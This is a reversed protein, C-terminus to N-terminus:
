QLTYGGDVTVAAGTIFSADDSVLFAVAAAVDEPTGMRDIVLNSKLVDVMEKISRGESAAQRHTGETLIPGPNVANVRCLLARM